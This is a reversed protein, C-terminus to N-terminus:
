RLALKRPAPADNRALGNQPQRLTRVDTAAEPSAGRGLQGGLDFVSVLQALGAAREQLLRAGEAAQGVMVADQQTVQDMRSIAEHIQEIGSQQQASAVTIEGMIDAVRRISGVIEQMTAGAQDVQKSGSDVKEVSDTILTKIERAAAASRQALNRVESAVVAFGRGQEGARAAEVAANLALINTQFAIGDIVTIIDVIKRASENIAGMTDVVQDVAAGGRAAVASASAALSNAQRANDANQRVTSTLEEISAATEEISSAQQETRGSLEMNGAAIQLSSSAITDAGSRVEGVITALAGNMDALAQLLQGFENSSAVEIQGGLDGKAVRRAVDVAKHLPRLISRSLFVAALLAIIVAAVVTCLMLRDQFEIDRNAQEANARGRTGLLDELRQYAPQGRKYAPNIQSILLAGTDDWKGAQLAEAAASVKDLALGDSSDYWEKVLAKAQPTQLSAVFEDWRRRLLQTNEAIAAYHVSLPHDHMKAYESAPNHQLAQFIQSRNIEMRLMIDGIMVQQRADRLAVGELLSVAHKTGYFGVAGVAVTIAILLGIVLTILRKISTNRM